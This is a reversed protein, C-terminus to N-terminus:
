THCLNFSRLLSHFSLGEPFRPVLAQTHQQLACLKSAGVKCFGTSQKRSIWSWSPPVVVPRGYPCLLGTSLLWGQVFPGRLYSHWFQTAVGLTVQKRHTRASTPRAPLTLTGVLKRNLASWAIIRIEGLCTAMYRVHGYKFLPLSVFLPRNIRSALLRDGMYILGLYYQWIM